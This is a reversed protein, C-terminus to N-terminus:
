GQPRDCSRRGVESRSLGLRLVSMRSGAFLLNNVSYSTTLRRRLAREWRKTVQEPLGNIFVRAVDSNTLSIRDSGATGNVTVTDAQGDGVGSGPTGALDIAVQTVGTGTLDGVVINDAGGRASLENQEISNLDMTVNGVDRTLKVGGHSATIS